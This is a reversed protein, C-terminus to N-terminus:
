RSKSLRLRGGAARASAPSDLIGSDNIFAGEKELAKMLSQLARNSGFGKKRVFCYCRRGGLDGCSRLFDSLAPALRGGFLGAAEAGFVLYDYYSVIRGAETWVNFTEILPGGPQSAAGQSLSDALIKLKSGDRDSGCYLM